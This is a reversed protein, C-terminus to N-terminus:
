RPTMLNLGGLTTPRSSLPAVHLSLPRSLRCRVSLSLARLNGSSRCCPRCCRRCRCCRCCLIRLIRLIRCWSLSAPPGDASRRVAMVAMSIVHRRRHRRHAPPALRPSAPLRSPRALASSHTLPLIPLISSSSSPVGRPPSTTDTERDDIAAGAGTGSQNKKRKKWKHKARARVEFKIGEDRAEGDGMQPRTTAGRKAVSRVNMERRIREDEGDDVGYDVMGLLDAGGGGGWCCSGLRWAVELWMIFVVFRPLGNRL